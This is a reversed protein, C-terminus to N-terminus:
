FNSEIIPVQLTFETGVQITTSGLGTNNYFSLGTDPSLIVGQATLYTPYASFLASVLEDNDRYYDEFLPIWQTLKEQIQGKFGETIHGIVLRKTVTRVYQFMDEPSDTVLAKAGLRNSMYPFAEQEYPFYPVSVFGTVGAMAEKDCAVIRKMLDTLYSDAM